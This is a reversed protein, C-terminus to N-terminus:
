FTAVHPTGLSVGTLAHGTQEECQRELLHGVWPAGPWPSWAVVPTLCAQSSPPGPPDAQRSERQLCSEGGAGRVPERGRSDM